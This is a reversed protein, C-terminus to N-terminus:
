RLSKVSRAKRLNFVPIIQNHINHKFNNDEHTVQGKDPPQQATHNLHKHLFLFRISFCNEYKPNVKETAPFEIFCYQIHLM